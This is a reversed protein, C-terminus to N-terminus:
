TNTHKCKSAHLYWCQSQISLSDIAVCRLWCVCMFICLRTFENWNSADLIDLYQVLFGDFIRDHMRIPTIFSHWSADVNYTSHSFCESISSNVSDCSISTQNKGKCERYTDQISETVQDHMCDSQHPIREVRAFFFANRIVCLVRWWPIHSILNKFICITNM